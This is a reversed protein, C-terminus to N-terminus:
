DDETEVEALGVWLRGAYVLATLSPDPTDDIIQLQWRCIRYRDCDDGGLADYLAAVQAKTIPITLEGDAAPSDPDGTIADILPTACADLASWRWTLGTLDIASIVGSTSRKELTIGIRRDAGLYLRLPRQLPAGARLLDDIGTM